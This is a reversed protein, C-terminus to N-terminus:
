IKFKLDLAPLVSKKFMDLHEPVDIFAGNVVINEVAEAATKYYKGQKFLTLLQRVSVITDLRQEDSYKKIACYADLIRTINSDNTYGTRTKIINILVDLDPNQFNVIQEFRNIFAKNLRNTGEYAINCTAIMRFNPHAKVIEGNPLDIQRNEDLLSNFKGLVGPRAFNIEELIACYGNRIAKTIIGDQWIFEPDSPNNKTPNPMMSGFLDAEEINVSFNVSIYPIGCRYPIVRASTSKGTGSDGTFLMAYVDGKAFGPVLNNLTGLDFEEYYPQVQTYLQQAYLDSVYQEKIATADVAINSGKLTIGFPALEEKSLGEEVPTRNIIDCLVAKFVEPAEDIDLTIWETGIIPLNCMMASEFKKPMIARLMSDNQLEFYNLELNTRITGCENIQFYTIESGLKMTCVLFIEDVGHENKTKIINQKFPTDTFPSYTYDIYPSRHWGISDYNETAIGQVTIGYDRDKFSYFLTHFLNGVEITNAFDDVPYKSRTKFLNACFYALSIIYMLLASLTETGEYRKLDKILRDPLYLTDFAYGFGVRLEGINIGLKKFTEFLVATEKNNKLTIYERLDDGCMVTQVNGAPSKFGILYDIAKAVFGRCVNITPICHEIDYKSIVRDSTYNQEVCRSVTDKSIVTTLKM